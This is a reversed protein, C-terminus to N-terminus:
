CVAILNAILIRIMRGIIASISHGYVRLVYNILLLMMGISPSASNVHLLCTATCTWVIMTVNNILQLGTRDGTHLEPGTKTFM